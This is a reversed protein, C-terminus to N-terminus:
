RKLSLYYEVIKSAVDVGTADSLASFHANSNLECLMPGCNSFLVDVGVFDAGLACAAKEALRIYESYAADGSSVPKMKGGGAVNSRFDNINIREACAVAKGGVVYVRLDRGFSEKIFKQFVLTNGNLNKVIREVANRNEALYVGKGFSSKSEKVVLPYGLREVRNLFNLDTYGVNSYTFPAVVTEPMAIKGEFFVFTRAKDDCIEITKPSNVSRYGRKELMECLILDKDFFLVPAGNGDEDLLKVAEDNSLFVVEEGFNRFASALAEKLKIFPPTNLYANTVVYNKM